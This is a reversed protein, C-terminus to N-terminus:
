ATRAHEVDCIEDNKKEKQKIKEELDEPSPILDSVKDELEAPDSIKKMYKYTKGPGGQMCEIAGIGELAELQKGLTRNNESTQKNMEKGKKKVDARTFEEQDIAAVITFLTRARASISSLTSSLLISGLKHAIRYDEVDAAIYEIEREKIIEKQFQRMLAIARILNLFRELDRRNRTSFYPFDIHTAYPITVKLPRILRQINRHLKKVKEVEKEKEIWCESAMEKQHDQILKTQEPSQDLYLEFIRTSNEPHVRDYTTTTIISAPCEIERHVSEFPGGEYKRIPVYRALRGESQMLRIIPEVDKMGEIEQIIIFKHKLQDENGYEFSRSTASTITMVDEEPILSAITNLLYSKGSSSDGFLVASIPVNTKRTLSFLYLSLANEEEGVIGITKFNNCVNQVINPDKLYEVAEEKEEQSMEYPQKQEAQKEHKEKLYTERAKKFDRQLGNYVLTKFHLTEKVNELGLAAGIEDLLFLLPFIEEKVKEIQEDSRVDSLDKIKHDILNLSENKLEELAERGELLLYDALDVKDKGKKRPLEIIKAKIGSQFLEDALKEAKNQGALNKDNDFILYIKKDKIREIQCEKLSSGCLAITPLGEQEALICDIPGETIHLEKNGPNFSYQNYIGKKVYENTPLNLYKPSEKDNLCRGTLYVVYRNRLFPFIIRNRFFSYLEGNKTQKALGAKLILENRYGERRLYGILRNDDTAYGIKFKSFSSEKIGRQILYKQAIISEQNGESNLWIAFQHSAVSLIDNIEKSMKFYEDEVNDPMSVGSRKSLELLAELFSIKKISMVFDIVDGHRGCSQGYCHYRNEEPYIVFSPDNDEHFPCLCKYHNGCKKPEIGNESCVELIQNKGKITEIITRM